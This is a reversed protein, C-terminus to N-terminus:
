LNTKWGSQHSVQRFESMWNTAYSDENSNSILSASYTLITEITKALHPRTKSTPPNDDDFISFSSQSSNLATQWITIITSLLHIDLFRHILLDFVLVRVREVDELGEKCLWTFGRCLPIAEELSILNTHDVLITATHCLFDDVLKLGFKPQLSLVWLVYLL